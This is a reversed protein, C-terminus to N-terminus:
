SFREIMESIRQLCKRSAFEGEKSFDAGGPLNLEAESLQAPRWHTELSAWGEYGDRHLAALQGAIDVLGDGVVVCEAGGAEHNWVGDKIHVHAIENKCAAYGASFPHYKEDLWIENAPDWVGRVQAHGLKDLFRHLEDGTAIITSAENEIGLVVPHSEILPIVQNRYLDAVEDWRSEPEPTRWFTFVRMVSTGLISAMELCRRLMEMHERLAEGDGLDCKLFPTSLACVQLGADDLESRVRKADEPTLDQTGKGWVSRIELGKLNYDHAVTVARSLDQSVEDSFVALKFSM